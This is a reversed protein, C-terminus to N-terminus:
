SRARVSRAGVRMRPRKAAERLAAMLLGQWEEPPADFVGAVLSPPVDRYARRDPRYAIERFGAQVLFIWLADSMGPQVVIRFDDMVIKAGASPKLRARPRNRRQRINLLTRFADYAGMGASRTKLRGVGVRHCDISNILGNARLRNAAGGSPM